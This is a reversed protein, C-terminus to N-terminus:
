SRVLGTLFGSTVLFYCRFSLLLSAGVTRFRKQKRRQYCRAEYGSSFQRQHVSTLSYGYASATLCVLRRRKPRSSVPAAAAATASLLLVDELGGPFAPSPASLSTAAFHPPGYTPFGTLLGSDYAPLSPSEISSLLAHSAVLANSGLSTLSSSPSPSLGRSLARSPSHLKQSTRPSTGSRPSPIRV